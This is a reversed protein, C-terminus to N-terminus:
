TRTCAPKKNCFWLLYYLVFTSVTFLWSRTLISIPLALQAISLLHNMELTNLSKLLSRYYTKLLSEKFGNSNTKYNKNIKNHLGIIVKSKFTIWQNFIFHKYSKSKLNLAIKQDDYRRIKIHFYLNFHNSKIHLSCLTLLRDM